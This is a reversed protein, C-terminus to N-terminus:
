NYEIFGRNKIVITYCVAGTFAPPLQSPYVAERGYLLFFPTFKTSSHRKTRQAFMAGDLYECWNNQNENVM